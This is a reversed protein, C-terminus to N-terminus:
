LPEHDPRALCIFLSLPGQSGSLPVYQLALKNNLADMLDADAMIDSGLGIFTNNGSGLIPGTTLEPNNAVLIFGRHNEELSLWVSVLSDTNCQLYDVCESREEFFCRGDEFATRHPYWVTSDQFGLQDMHMRIGLYSYTDLFLVVPLSEKESEYVTLQAVQLFDRNWTCRQPLTSRAAFPICLLVMLIATTIILIRRTLIGTPLGKAATIMYASYALAYHRASPRFFSLALFAWLILSRSINYTRKFGIAALILLLLGIFFGTLTTVSMSRLGWTEFNFSSTGAAFRLSTGGASLPMGALRQMVPTEDPFGIDDV